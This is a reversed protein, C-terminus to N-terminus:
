IDDYIELKINKTEDYTFFVESYIPKVSIHLLNRKVFRAFGELIFHGSEQYCRLFRISELYNQKLLVALPDNSLNVSKDGITFKTIMTEPHSREQRYLFEVKRGKCIAVIANSHSEVEAKHKTVIVNQGAALLSFVILM